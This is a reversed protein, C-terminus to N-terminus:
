STKVCSFSIYNREVSLGLDHQFPEVSQVKILAVFADFNSCAGSITIYNHPTNKRRYIFKLNLITNSHCLTTEKIWDDLYVTSKKEQRM